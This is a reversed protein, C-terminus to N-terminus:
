MFGGSAVEIEGTPEIERGLQIKREAGIVKWHKYLVYTNTYGGQRVVRAHLSRSTLPKMMATNAPGLLLDQM